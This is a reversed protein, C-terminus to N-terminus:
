TPSRHQLRYLRLSSLYHDAALIRAHRRAAKSSRQMARHNLVLHTANTLHAGLAIGSVLLLIENDTM